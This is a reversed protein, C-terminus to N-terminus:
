SAAPRAPEVRALHALLRARQELGPAPAIRAPGAQLGVRLGLELYRAVQSASRSVAGEFAEGSRMGETRLQVWIEGDQEAEVERVWLEGSRLTSRWDIRRSPDGPAFERVGGVSAGHGTPGSVSEGRERHGIRTPEPVEGDLAPYVLATQESALALSKSFLGFPFRTFVAFGVFHMEGRRDARLRYSCETRAGPDLRLAFCRGATHEESGRRFRDEVAVAYAALRSQRNSIELTVWGDRGVCLEPPLRRRVAIGRLAAEPLLGSLM